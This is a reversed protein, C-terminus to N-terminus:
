ESNRDPGLHEEAVRGSVARALQEALATAVVVVAVVAIDIAVDGIRKWVSPM